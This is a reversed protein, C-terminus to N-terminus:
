RGSGERSKRRSLEKARREGAAAERLAGGFVGAHHWGSVGRRQTNAVERKAAAKEAEAAAETAKVAREEAQVTEKKHVQEALSQRGGEGGALQAAVEAPLGAEPASAGGDGGADAGVDVEGPAAEEAPEVLGAAAANYAANADAATVAFDSGDGVPDPQESATRPAPDAPAASAAPAAAPTGDPLALAHWVIAAAPIDVWCGYRDGEGYLIRVVREPGDEGGLKDLVHFSSVVLAASLFGQLNGM